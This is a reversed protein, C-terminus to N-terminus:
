WHKHKRVVLVGTGEIKIEDITPYDSLQLEYSCSQCRIFQKKTQTDKEKRWNGSYEYSVKGSSHKDSLTRFEIVRRDRSVSWTSRECKICVLKSTTDNMRNDKKTDADYL